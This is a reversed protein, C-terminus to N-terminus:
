IGQYGPNYETFSKMWPFLQDQTPKRIFFGFQNGQSRWLRATVRVGQEIIPSLWRLMRSSRFPIRESPVRLGYFFTISHAAQPAYSAITKKVESETWRYIFNPTSTNRVGGYRFNHARVAAAEYAPVRGAAIAARMLNSDRAEIALIGNRAVRYMELLGRHPSACHHLGAHVMVYDFSGDPLTLNEADQYSWAFPPFEDGRVREDLNSITVNTFGSDRLVNRDFEGGCVVLVSADRSLDTKRLVEAFFPISRQHM